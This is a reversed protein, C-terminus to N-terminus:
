ALLKQAKQGEKTYKFDKIFSKLERAPCPSKPVSGFHQVSPEHNQFFSGIFNSVVGQQQERAQQQLYHHRMRDNFPDSFMYIGRYDSIKIDWYCGMFGFWM